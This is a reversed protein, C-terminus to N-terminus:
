KYKVTVTFVNLMRHSKLRGSCFPHSSHEQPNNCLSYHYNREPTLFGSPKQVGSSPVTLNDQFILLFNGTSATYYRVQENTHPHGHWTIFSPSPPPPQIFSIFSTTFDQVKYLPM